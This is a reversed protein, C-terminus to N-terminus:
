FEVSILLREVAELATGFREKGRSASDRWSAM